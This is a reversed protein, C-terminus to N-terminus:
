LGPTIQTYIYLRWGWPRPSWLSSNLSLAKPSSASPSGRRPHPTDGLLPPSGEQKGGRGMCSPLRGELGSGQTLWGLLLGWGLPWDAARSAGGVRDWM